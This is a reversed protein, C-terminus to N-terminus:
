GLCLSSYESNIDTCYTNCLAKQFRVLHEGDVPFCRHLMWKRCRKLKQRPKCRLASVLGWWQVTMVKKERKSDTVYLHLFFVHNISVSCVSNDWACGSSWWLKGLFIFCILPWGVSFRLILNVSLPDQLHKQFWSDCSFYLLDFCRPKGRWAMTFYVHVIILTGLAYVSNNKLLFKKEAIKNILKHQKTM